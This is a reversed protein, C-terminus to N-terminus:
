INDRALEEEMMCALGDDDVPEPNNSHTSTATDRGAELWHYKKQRLQELATPQVPEVPAPPSANVEIEETLDITIPPQSPQAPPDSAPTQNIGSLTSKSPARGDRPLVVYSTQERQANTLEPREFNAPVPATLPLERKTAIDWVLQNHLTSVHGLQSEWHAAQKKFEEARKKHGTSVRRLTALENRLKQEPSQGTGDWTTYQALSAKYQNRERTLDAVQSRLQSIADDQKSSGVAVCKVHISPASPLYGLPGGTVPYPSDYQPQNNIQLCERTTTSIVDQGEITFREKTSESPDPPTPSHPFVAEFNEFEPLPDDPFILPVDSGNGFLNDFTDIFSAPTEITPDTTFSPTEASSGLRQRKEPEPEQSNEATRKRSSSSELPPPNLLSLTKHPTNLDTTNNAQTDHEEFAPSTYIYNDSAEVGHQSVANDILAREEFSLEQNQLFNDWLQYGPSLTLGLDDKQTRSSDALAQEQPSKLSTSNGEAVDGSM